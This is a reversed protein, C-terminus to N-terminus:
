DKRLKRIFKKTLAPHKKIIKDLESTLNKSLYKNIQAYTMGQALAEEVKQIFISQDEDKEIYSLIGSTTTQKLTTELSILREMLNGIETHTDSHLKELAEIQNKLDPEDRNQTQETLKEVLDQREKDSSQLKDVAINLEEVKDSLVRNETSLNGVNGQLVTNDGTLDDINKQLLLNNDQLQEIKLDM